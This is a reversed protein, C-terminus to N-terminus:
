LAVLMNQRCCVNPINALSVLHLYNAWFQAPFLNEECPVVVDCVVGQQHTMQFVLIHETPDVKLVGRVSESASGERQKRDLLTTCGHVSGPELADERGHLFLVICPQKRHHM